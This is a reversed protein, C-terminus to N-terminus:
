FKLDLCLGFPLNTGKKEHVAAKLNYGSVVNLTAASSLKHKFVADLFGHHNVKFKVSSDNNIKHSLGFRSELM